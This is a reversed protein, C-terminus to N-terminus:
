KPFGTSDLGPILRLANKYYLKKLVGDPLSLGYVKWFAQYRRIHDFYEDATEFVRFYYPYESIEWTDKGFVIRDQYKEFFARAARPQRGLEAMAASPELYMNPLKDLWQGLQGLDNAMWGFHANIFNTKPHKAFLKKQEEMLTEWQVQEGTSRNRGPRSKMELWRENNKDMPDWFPKPDATHILVPIKYKACVEFAKDFRADDLPIRKGSADKLDMGLHKWVKLGQAGYKIDDELQQAVKDPYAPDDLNSEDLNTFVAFRSPYRKKQADVIARLTAGHGRRVPSTVMVRMNVQDMKELLGKVCEETRCNGQHLHVDIFPYKAKPVQSHPVVLTSKPEYEEITLSQAFCIGLFFVALFVSRM